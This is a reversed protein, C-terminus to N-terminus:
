EKLIFYDSLRINLYIHIAKTMDSAVLNPTLLNKQKLSMMSITLDREDM